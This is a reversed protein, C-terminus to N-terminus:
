LDITNLLVSRSAEEKNSNDNKCDIKYNNIEIINKFMDSFTENFTIM